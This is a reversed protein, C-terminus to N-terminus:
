ALMGFTFVKIVAVKADTANLIWGLVTPHAAVIARYMIATHNYSFAGVEGTDSVATAMFRDLRIADLLIDYDNAKRKEKVWPYLAAHM